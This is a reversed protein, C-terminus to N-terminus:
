RVKSHKSAELSKLFNNRKKRLYAPINTVLEKPATYYVFVQTPTGYPADSYWNEMPNETVLHGTHLGLKVLESQYAIAYQPVYSISDFLGDVVPRVTREKIERVEDNSSRGDIGYNVYNIIDKAIREYCMFEQAKEFSGCSEVIMQMMNNENIM